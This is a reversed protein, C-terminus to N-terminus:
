SILATLTSVSLESVLRNQNALIFGAWRNKRHTSNLPYPLDVLGITNVAIKCFIKWVKSWTLCDLAATSGM